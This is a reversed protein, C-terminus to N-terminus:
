KSSEEADREGEREGEETVAGIVRAQAELQGGMEKGKPTPQLPGPAFFLDM